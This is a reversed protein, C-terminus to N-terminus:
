PPIDWEPDSDPEPDDPPMAWRLYVRHAQTRRPRGDVWLAMRGRVPAYEVSRICAGKWRALRAAVLPGPDGWDDPLREELMDVVAERGPGRSVALGSGDNFLVDYRADCLPM